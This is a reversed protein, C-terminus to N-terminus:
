PTVTLGFVQRRLLDLAVSTARVRISERSTSPFTRLLTADGAPGSVAFWVTGVPKGPAAGGPGAIGSVAVAVDAGFVRRAGAAMAEVCRESVAGDAEVVEAPVGLLDIKSENSYSVVGGLLAESAGAVDTLAAAVMGGTCSEALGITLGRSAAERVIAAPLSLGEHGYCREGFMGVVEDVAAALGGEGAGADGLIVRVDGPKALITFSIGDHRALVRSVAHQADSESMGVVGIEVPEAGARPYREMLETLMPRMELPPGPLLALLGGRTAVVLGPATGTTADIIEAAEFVEAQVLVQRAAEPDTHRAAMPELWAVLREDVVLPLGLAASAAERTIDDHTPGLGGTTVVLGYEGTLRALLGALLRPDDGVSVCEAVAFGRERLARAIESTNTDIRLGDTLESGVTVIAATLGPM